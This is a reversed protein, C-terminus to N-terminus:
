HWHPLAGSQDGSRRRSSEQVWGQSHLRLFSYLAPSLSRMTLIPHERSQHGRSGLSRRWLVHSSQVGDFEREIPRARTQSPVCAALLKHQGPPVFVVEMQVVTRLWPVKCGWVVKLSGRGAPSPLALFEEQVQKLREARGGVMCQASILDSGAMVERACLSIRIRFIRSYPAPQNLDECAFSSESHVDPGDLQRHRLLPSLLSKLVRQQARNGFWPGRGTRANLFAVASHVTSM